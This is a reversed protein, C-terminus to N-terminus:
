GKDLPTLLRPGSGIQYVTGAALSDPSYSADIPELIWPIEARPGPVYAVWQGYPSSPERDFTYDVPVRVSWFDLDAEKGTKPANFTWSRAKNLSARALLERSRTMQTETGIVRLNVQEVIADEVNGQRGIRLALYVTGQVGTQVAADPYRPPSMKAASITDSTAAGDAGSGADEGGFSASRISVAFSSEDFKKAVLLLNVRTKAKVAKGDVRIPVFRWNPVNRDVIKIVGEPLDGARDITYASVSGDEGIDIMGAVLMSSEIQKRVAQRGEDALATSSGVLLVLGIWWRRQM